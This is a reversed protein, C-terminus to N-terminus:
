KGQHCGLGQFVKTTIPYLEERKSQYLDTIFSIWGSNGMWTLLLFDYSSNYYNHPTLPLCPTGLKERKKKLGHIGRPATIVMQTVTAKTVLVADVVSNRGSLGQTALVSALLTNETQPSIKKKRKLTEKRGKKVKRTPVVDRSRIVRPVLVGGQITSLKGGDLLVGSNVDTNTLSQLQGDVGGLSSPIARYKSEEGKSRPFNSGGGKKKCDEKGGRGEKRRRLVKWSREWM